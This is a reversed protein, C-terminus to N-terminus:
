RDDNFDLEQEPVPAPSEDGEDDLVVTEPCEIRQTWPTNEWQQEQLMLPPAESKRRTM